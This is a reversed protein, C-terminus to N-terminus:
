TKQAAQTRRIAAKGSELDSLVLSESILSKPFCGAGLLQAAQRGGEFEAENM